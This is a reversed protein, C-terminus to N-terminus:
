SGCAVETTLVCKVRNYLCCLTFCAGTIRLRCQWLQLSVEGWVFYIPSIHFFHLIHCKIALFELAIRVSGSWGYAVNKETGLRGIGGQQVVELWTAVLEGLLKKGISKWCFIWGVGQPSFLNGLTAGKWSCRKMGVHRGRKCLLSM